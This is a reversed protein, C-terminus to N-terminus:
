KDRGKMEKFSDVIHMFLLLVSVYLSIAALSKGSAFLTHMGQANDVKLSLFLLALSGNMTTEILTPLRSHNM